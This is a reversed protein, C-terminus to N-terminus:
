TVSLSHETKPCYTYKKLCIWGQEQNLTHKYGQLFRTRAVHVSKFQLYLVIVVQVYTVLWNRQDWSHHVCTTIAICMKRSHTWAWQTVCSGMWANFQMWELCNINFLSQHWLVVMPNPHVCTHLNWTKPCVTHTTCSITMQVTLSANGDSGSSFARWRTQQLCAASSM